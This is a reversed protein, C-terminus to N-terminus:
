QTYDDDQNSHGSGYLDRSLRECIADEQGDPSDNLGCNTLVLSSLDM